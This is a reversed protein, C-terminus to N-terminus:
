EDPLSAYHILVVEHHQLDLNDEGFDHLAVVGRDIAAAKDLDYEQSSAAITETIKEAVDETFQLIDNKYHRHRFIVIAPLWTFSIKACISSLLHLSPAVHRYNYEALDMIACTVYPTWTIIFSVPFNVVILFMKQFLEM